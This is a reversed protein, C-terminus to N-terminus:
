AAGCDVNEIGFRLRPRRREQGGRATIDCCCDQRKLNLLSIGGRLMPTALLEHAPRRYREKQQRLERLHGQWRGRRCKERAPSKTTKRKGARARLLPQLLRAGLEPEQM